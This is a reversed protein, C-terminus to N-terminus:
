TQNGADVHCNVSMQLELKLLDLGRRQGRRSGPKRTTCPCVRLCVGMCMSTEFLHFSSLSFVHSPSLLVWVEEIGIVHSRDHLKCPEIVLSHGRVRCATLRPRIDAPLTM